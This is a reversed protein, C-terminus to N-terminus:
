RTAAVEAMVFAGRERAFVRLTEVGLNFDENSYPKLTDTLVSPAILGYARDIERELWGRTDGPLSDIPIQKASAQAELLTDLYLARLDPYELVRSMLRNRNPEPVDTINHWISYLHGDVFANSKDWVIFRFQNSVDPRYMFYNNMGWNGLFGDQDALFVEMAVHRVFQALDLFEAIATRFAAGSSNITRVMSAVVDPRSNTEHTEPKFPKPVYTAPDPGRDEFYYPLDTADYDYDYLYGASEGLNRDLFSRDVSEVITYLGVYENNVFLRAFAERPAPLGMRRFFLMSLWEHMQSADQTNNRLIFSKLGLFKQTSSYRDM